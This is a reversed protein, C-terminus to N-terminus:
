PITISMIVFSHVCQLELQKAAFTPEKLMDFTDWQVDDKLEPVSRQLRIFEMSDM